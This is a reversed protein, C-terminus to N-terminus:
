PTHRQLWSLAGDLSSFDALSRAPVQPHRDFLMRSLANGPGLEFFVSTGMEVAVDTVRAWEITTAIQRSLRDVARVPDRVISADIGALVPVRTRRWHFCGLTAAFANVAPQLLPSHAPVTIPLSVVHAGSRQALEGALAALVARPGALVAHDDGNRIAVHVGAAAARAELEVRRVGRVALMGCDPPACDDMAQARATAAALVEESSLAGAVGYAALEGVSYGAVLEPEIRQERLAAGVILEYLCVLPQAHRNEFCRQPDRAVALADGPLCRSLREAHAALSADAFLRTFM